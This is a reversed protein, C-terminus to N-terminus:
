EKGPKRRESAVPYAAVRSRFHDVHGQIAKRLEICLRIVDDEGKADLIKSCLERIHDDSRKM